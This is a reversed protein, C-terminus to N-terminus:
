TLPPWENDKLLRFKCFTQKGSTLEVYAKGFNEKRKSESLFKADKSLPVKWIHQGGDPGLEIPMENRAGWLVLQFTLEALNLKSFADMQAPSAGQPILMSNNRVFVCVSKVMVSRRGNNVATITLMVRTADTHEISIAGDVKLNARDVWWQRITFAIAITGTVAGYLALYDIKM